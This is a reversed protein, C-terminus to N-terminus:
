RTKGGILIIAEKIISNPNEIKLRVASRRFVVGTAGLTTLRGRKIISNPNEGFSDDM